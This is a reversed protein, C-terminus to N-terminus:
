FPPAKLALLVPAPGAAAGSSPLNTAASALLGLVLTAPLLTRM